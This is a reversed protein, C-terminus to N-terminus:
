DQLEKNRKELKKHAVFLKRNVKTAINLVQHASNISMKDRLKANKLRKLFNCLVYSQRADLYDAFGRLLTEAERQAILFETKITTDALYKPTIHVSKLWKDTAYNIMGETIRRVETIEAKKM